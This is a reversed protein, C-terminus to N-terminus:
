RPTAVALATTFSRLGGLGTLRSTASRRPGSQDDAIRLSKVDSRQCALRQMGHKVAAIATRLDRRGENGLGRARLAGIDHTPDGTVAILDAKLGPAVHGIQDAMHLVAADISTAARLAAVAVHGLRRSSSKGANDGHAFVGVDSGNCITVGADLAARLETRKKCGLRSPIPAATGARPLHRDGRVGRTPCLCHAAGGDHVSSRPRSTTAM